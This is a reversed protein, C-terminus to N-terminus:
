PHLKKCTHIRKHSKLRSKEVFKKGCIECSHPKLGTHITLHRNLKYNDKFVKGCYDCRFSKKGKHKNCDNKPKTEAHGPSPSAKNMIGKHGQTEAVHCNHCLLESTKQKQLLQERHQSTCLDEKIQPPEPDEQDQSSNRQQQDILVEEEKCVHQQLLELPPVPDEQIQPPEPDEQDLSFNREQNFFQQDTLVEEENRVHQQQLEIRHLQVEPKWVIDLLKRQRNIEEELEFINNEFVRFIEEAAATLRENIFERLCQVSSM